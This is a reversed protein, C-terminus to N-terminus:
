EEVGGDNQQADADSRQHATELVRVTGFRGGHMSETDTQAHANAGATQEIENREMQKLGTEDAVPLPTKLVRHIKEFFRRATSIKGM